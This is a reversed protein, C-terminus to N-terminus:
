DAAVHKPLEVMRLYCVDKRVLAVSTFILLFVESSPQLAAANCGDLSTNKHKTNQTAMTLLPLSHKTNGHYTITFSAKHQWPLYHYHINQTAM